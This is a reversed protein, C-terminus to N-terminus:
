SRLRSGPVPPPLSPSRDTAAAELSAERISETAAPADPVSRLHSPRWGPPVHLVKGPPALKRASYKFVLYILFPSLVALPRLYAPMTSMALADNGSHLAMALLIAGVVGRTLRFGRRPAKGAM